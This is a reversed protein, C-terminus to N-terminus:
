SLQRVDGLWAYGAEDFDFDPFMDSRVAAKSLRRVAEETRTSRLEAVRWVVSGLVWLLLTVARFSNASSLWSRIRPLEGAAAMGMLIGVIIRVVMFFAAGFHGHAVDLWWAVTRGSMSM